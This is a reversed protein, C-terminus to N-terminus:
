GFNAARVWDDQDFGPISGQDNRCVHLARFAFVREADNVHGVVEKISWEAPGPRFDAQEATLGALVDRLVASQRALFNFVDGDPVRQVYGAYFAIYENEPPRSVKVSMASDKSLAPCPLVQGARM